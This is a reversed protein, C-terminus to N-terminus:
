ITPRLEFRGHSDEEAPEIRVDDVRAAPPGRRAWAILKELEEAPGQILAEVSGDRRNRVWGTVGLREAEELLAYRYGVGQVRGTIRLRRTMKYFVNLFRQL